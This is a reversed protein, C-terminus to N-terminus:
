NKNGGNGYGRVPTTLIKEVNWGYKMRELIASAKIGTIDAWEIVRHEEGNFELIPSKGIGMCKRSCYIREKGHDKRKRFKKGCIVCNSTKHEKQPNNIKRLEVGCKYSCTKAGNRSSVEFEKGCIPCTKRKEECSLTNRKNKAQDKLPIWCCNEPCYNGNVDKREISLGKKHGNKMSWDYFAQFDHLWEGCVTIGRGGYDPYDPSKKCYCRRKMGNWISYLGNSKNTLGHTRRLSGAMEKNLCGCSKSKGSRLSAQLVVRETGCDCRCKWRQEVCGKKNFTPEALEIVLWRNFKQGTLDMCEGKRPM